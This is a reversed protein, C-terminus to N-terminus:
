RVRHQEEGSLVDQVRPMGSKVDVGCEAAIMEVATQVAEVEESGLGNRLSGRLHWVTERLARQAVLCSLAIMETEPFTLPASPMTEACPALFVGYTVNYSM